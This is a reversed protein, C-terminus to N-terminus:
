PNQNDWGGFPVSDFTNQVSTRDPRAPELNGPRLASQPRTPIQAWIGGPGVQGRYRTPRTALLEWILLHLGGSGGGLLGVTTNERRCYTPCGETWRFRSKKRELAERARESCNMLRRSTLVRKLSGGPSYMTTGDVNSGLLSPSKTSRTKESFLAPVTYTM